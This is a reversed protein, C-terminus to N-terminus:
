PTYCLQSDLEEREALALAAHRQLQTTGTYCQSSVAQFPTCIPFLELGSCGQPICGPLHLRGTGDSHPSCAPSPLPSVGGGRLNNGHFHMATSKCPSSTASDPVLLLNTLVFCAAFTCIAPEALLLFFFLLCYFCIITPPNQLLSLFCMSPTPSNFSNAILFQRKM